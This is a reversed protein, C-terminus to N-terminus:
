IRHCHQRVTGPSIFLQAGIEKSTLREALLGLIELERETLPEGFPAQIATSEPIQVEPFAALIRDIFVTNGHRDRLTRLLAATRPGADLFPRIWGGPEALQVAESLYELAKGTQGLSDALLAQYPLIALRLYAIHSSAALGALRGLLEDTKELDTKTGRGLRAKIWTLQPVYLLHVGIPPNPDYKEMWHYTRAHENQQLEVEAQIAKLQALLHPSEIEMLLALNNELLDTIREHKGLALYTLVM